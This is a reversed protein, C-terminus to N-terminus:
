DKSSRSCAPRLGHICCCRDPPMRRSGATSIGVLSLRKEPDAETSQRDILADTEHNCYGTYNRDAGCLYTEYFKQDPEDLAGESVNVGVTYDKRIVRPFWSATEIVELEADISAETLQSIAIVAADRYGEVNRTSLTVALRKEPGYGLRQM